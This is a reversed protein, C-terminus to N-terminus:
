LWYKELCEVKLIINIKLTIKKLESDDTQLLKIEISYKYFGNRDRKSALPSIKIGYAEFEGIIRCESAVVYKRSLGICKNIDFVEARRIFYMRKEINEQM